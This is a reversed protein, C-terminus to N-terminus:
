LSTKVNERQRVLKTKSEDCKILDGMINLTENMFLDSQKAEKKKAADADKDLGLLKRQEKFIRKEELYKKWRKEENLSLTKQDRAKKFRAIMLKMQKFEKSKERRKLSKARLTEICPKLDARPKFNARTIADWPLAHKLNSEGLEMVDTIDHFPIDAVVGKMQTSGGNIRYFKSVTIKLEGSKQKVGYYKMVQNLNFITQVTGKGHTHKDGVIVARGYDQMAAAFIEAASASQRSVLLILPGSYYVKDDYDSQIEPIGGSAKEIQVVPGKDFFLGTLSVAEALSGGGNQRLDIIVGDVKDKKFRTLIKKMDRTVSKYDPKGKYAAEFDIYFSPLDIVGIKKDKGDVKIKRITGKAEQDQLTVKDRTITILEPVGQSGKQGKIVYLTVKTDKKGRILQVVEDLPMDIINVPEKNEQAVAVIRDQAALRGDKAAPGGKIISVIKTYGDVTTLVAGVGVLSLSMTIDFDEATKPAFYASHPDYIRALTNLYFELRDIGRKEKLFKLSTGIRKKIEVTPKKLWLKAIKNQKIEEKTKTGDGKMSRHLLKLSLLDNKLKKRWLEPLEKETPRKMKTRDYHFVEDKSFDLKKGDIESDAFAQYAEMRKILRDYVDFAFQIDGQKLQDDLRPKNPSFEEVDEQTLYIRGPDLTDFYEKFLQKSIEDDLAHKRFQKNALINASIRAIVGMDDESLGQAAKSSFPALLLSAVSTFALLTSMVIKHTRRLTSFERRSNNLVFM